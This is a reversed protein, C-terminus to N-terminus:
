VVAHHCGTRDVSGFLYSRETARGLPVCALRFVVSVPVFKLAKWNVTVLIGRGRCTSWQRERKAVDVTTARSWDYGSEGSDPLLGRVVLHDRLATGNVSELLIVFSSHRNFIVFTSIGVL